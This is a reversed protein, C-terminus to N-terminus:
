QGLFLARSFAYGAIYTMMLGGAIFMGLSVASNQSRMLLGGGFLSLPTILLGAYISEPTDTAVGIILALLGITIGIILIAKLYHSESIDEDEGMEKIRKEEM